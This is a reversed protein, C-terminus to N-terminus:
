LFSNKRNKTTPSHYVPFFQSKQRQIKFKTFRAVLRAVSVFIEILLRTTTPDHNPRPRRRFSLAGFLLLRKARRRVCVGVLIAMVFETGAWCSVGTTGVCYKLWASHLQGVLVGAPPRPLWIGWHLVEVFYTYKCLRWRTPIASWQFEARLM